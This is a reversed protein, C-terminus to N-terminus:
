IGTLSNAYYFLADEPGISTSAIFLHKRCQEHNRNLKLLCRGAFYNYYPDKPYTELLENFIFLAKEYMAAEFYETAEKAKDQALVTGFVFTFIVAIWYRKM